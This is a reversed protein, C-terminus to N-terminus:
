FIYDWILTYSPFAPESVTPVSLQFWQKLKKLYFINFCVCRKLQMKELWMGEELRKELM